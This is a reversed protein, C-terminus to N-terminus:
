SSPRPAFGRPGPGAWRSPSTRECGAEGNAFADSRPSQCTRYEDVAASLRAVASEPSPWIGVVRRGRETLRTAIVSPQGLGESRVGEIYESKHLDVLSRLADDTTMGLDGAIDEARVEDAHEIEVL